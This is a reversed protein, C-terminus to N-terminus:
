DANGATPPIRAQIADDVQQPYRYGLADAVDKAARRFLDALPEFERAAMLEALSGAPLEREFSRGYRGPKWEWGHSSAVLWELMRRTCGYRLDHDVVFQAFFLEGRARAKAVYTASWWFEEVLAAYEDESPKELIWSRYTPAAWAGTHGDKDLLVLYGDDLTRTLGHEAVLAPVNAPWLIWDIKVGDEYVVGRFLATAGHVDHEDGWRAAPIAYAAAPDFRGVDTLAVVLDYDSLDDPPGEARARTSTLVVLRVADDAQAWALVRELVPDPSL